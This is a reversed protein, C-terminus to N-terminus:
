RLLAQAFALALTRSLASYYWGYTALEGGQIGTLLAGVWGRWRLRGHTPNKTRLYQLPGPLDALAADMPRDLADPFMTQTLLSLPLISVYRYSGHESYLHKDYAPEYHIGPSSAAVEWM